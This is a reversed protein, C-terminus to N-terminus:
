EKLKQPVLTQAQQFTNEVLETYMNKLWSTRDVTKRINNLGLQYIIMHMDEHVSDKLGLDEEM